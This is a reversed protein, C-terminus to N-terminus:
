ARYSKLRYALFLVHSAFQLKIAGADFLRRCGHCGKSVLSFCDMGCIQDTVRRLNEIKYSVKQEYVFIANNKLYM